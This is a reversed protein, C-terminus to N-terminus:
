EAKKAPTFEIIELLESWIRNRERQEAMMEEAIVPSRHWLQRELEPKRAIYESASRSAQNM